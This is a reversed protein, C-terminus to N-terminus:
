RDCLETLTRVKGALEPTLAQAGYRWRWNGSATAPTNMRADAGLALFDQLPVIVTDAVSTMVARIFAWNVDHECAGLYAAARRREDRVEGSEPDAHMEPRNWWGLTTDNDHTGTYAVVNQPYNHPLYIHGGPDSGFAFQLVKMGPFSFQERLAEVEPTISGLDEAVLPLNGLRRQAAEFLRAGPGKVWRGEVATQADAPVEWYAEFGRFHDLRVMDVMTLAAELCDLWWRFGTEELRDWRYTPNGWLQGSASFYDPPVGGVSRVNGHSDLDFLAPHSWVDASNHEAYFPIDGMIRVGRARCHEKLEGWQRFFEFQLFKHFAVEDADPEKGLNWQTWPLGAHAGKLAMFRAFPDLWADHEREFHRFEAPAEFASFAKRLLGLKHASVAEFDVKSECFAPTGAVDAEALWGREVLKDPSILLPNGAFASVSQYPSHSYGTPGLPLVQWIKQGTDFLFDVWRYAEAGLDGIGFKGPLSTPHLLIGSARPLKM